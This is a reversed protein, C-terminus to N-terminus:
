RAAGPLQGTARVSASLNLGGSLALPNPATWFALAGDKARDCTFRGPSRYGEVATALARFAMAIRPHRGLAQRAEWTVSGQTGGTQGM